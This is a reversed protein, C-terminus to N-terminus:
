QGGTASPRVVPQPTWRHALLVGAAVAAVLGYEVPKVWEPLVWGAGSLESHWVAYTFFVGLSWVVLPATSRAILFPTLWLLYWPYVVPLLLLATAMPWAWAAPANQPLCRRACAAVTLGAITVLALVGATGLSPELWEFVLGNFRWREAYVGLSGVPFWGAGRVFPLFLALAIVGALAADRMRVRRWLLPALVIPLFKVTVAIALSVAAVMPWRRALAYATLMVFLVGLVDVHAAGAGEVAVLPHWAYALVWWPDRQTTALWQLIIVVILVDCVLVALTMARVSEHVSTVGRFFLQAAPPYITPLAASTPHIKRTVATHVEQLAPDDPASTYPNYGLRQVRGDWIYRYVDDSLIPASTLLPFRWALAMILCIVLERRSAEGSRAILWLTVVYAGAAITILILFDTVEARADISGITIMVILLVVGCGFVAKGM